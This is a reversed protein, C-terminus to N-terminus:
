IVDKSQNYLTRLRSYTWDKAEKYLKNVVEQNTTTIYDIGQIAKKAQFTYKGQGVQWHGERFNARNPQPEGPYFEGIPVKRGYNPIYPISSDRLFGSNLVQWYPAEINLVEVNGVGIDLGHTTNLVEMTLANELNGTMIPRKKNALIIQRMRNLSYEATEFIIAQMEPYFITKINMTFKYPNVGPIVELDLHWM